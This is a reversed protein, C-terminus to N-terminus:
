VRGGRVEYGIAELEQMVRAFLERKGRIGGLHSVGDPDPETLHLSLSIELGKRGPILRGTDDDLSPDSKYIVSLLEREIEEESVEGVQDLEAVLEGNGLETIRVVRCAM